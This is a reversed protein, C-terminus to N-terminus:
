CFGPCGRCQASVAITVLLIPKDSPKEIPLLDLASLVRTRDWETWSEVIKGGAFRSSTIGSLLQHSASVSDGELGETPRTRATWRVVVTEDDTNLQEVTVHLDPFALRFLAACIKVAEPGRVLDTILGNHNLYDTAFVEDAVDLDGRNWIADIARRVLM